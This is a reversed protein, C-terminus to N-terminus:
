VLSPMLELEIESTEDGRYLILKKIKKSISLNKINRNFLKATEEIEKLETELVDEKRNLVENDTTVLEVIM